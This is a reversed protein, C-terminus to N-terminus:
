KRHNGRGDQELLTRILEETIEEESYLPIENQSLIAAAVGKGAKTVHKFSGDYILHVGCSPSREKLIAASVPMNQCIYLLQEAGKIFENTVNQGQDNRTEAKGKLVDEGSGRIIEVPSRPTALGGLQEPCIALYKGLYCYKMLVSNKNNTTGDYKSHIGLLCSSILIM